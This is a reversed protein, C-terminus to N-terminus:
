TLFVHQLVRALVLSMRSLQLVVTVRVERRLVIIVIPVLIVTTWINTIAIVTVIAITLTHNEVTVERLPM